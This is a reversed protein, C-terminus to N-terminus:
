APCVEQGAQGTLEVLMDRQEDSLTGAAEPNMSITLLYNM